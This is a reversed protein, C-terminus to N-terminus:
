QPRFDKLKSTTLSQTESTLYKRRARSLSCKVELIYIQERQELPIIRQFKSKRPPPCLLLERLLHMSICFIYSILMTTDLHQTAACMHTNDCKRVHSTRASLTKSSHTRQLHTRAYKQIAIHSRECKKGQNIHQCVTKHIVLVYKNLYTYITNYYMFHDAVM